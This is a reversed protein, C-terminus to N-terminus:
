KQAVTVMDSECQLSYAPGHCEASFMDTVFEMDELKSIPFSQGGHRLCMTTLLFQLAHYSFYFDRKLKKKQALTKVGKM